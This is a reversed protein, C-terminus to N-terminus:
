GSKMSKGRWIAIRRTDEANKNWYLVTKKYSYEDHVRISIRIQYKLAKDIQKKKSRKEGSCLPYAAWLLDLIEIKALTPNPLKKNM